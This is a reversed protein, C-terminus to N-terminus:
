LRVTSVASRRTKSLSNVGGVLCTRTARSPYVREVRPLTQRRRERPQLLSLEKRKFVFTGKFSSVVRTAFRLM